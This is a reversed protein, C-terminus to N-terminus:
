EYLVEFSKTERLKEILAVVDKGNVGDNPICDDILIHNLFSEIELKLPEKISVFPSIVDGTIYSCMFEGFNDTLVNVGKNYITVPANTNTDDYLLSKKSGIITTTRVKFPHIWSYSLNLTFKKNSALSISATDCQAGLYHQFLNVSSKEIKFDFGPFWYLLMSFDHPALDYIVDCYTQFRGLNERNMQIHLIEGLEGSDIIEKIKIVPSSYLFTHGVALKVKNKKAISILKSAEKSSSTMPKEIFVNLKASLLDTAIKYHTEPPTAIFVADLEKDSLLDEYDTLFFTSSFKSSDGYKKKLSFDDVDVIYKMNSIESLVRIINSGWYGAGIVATNITSTM